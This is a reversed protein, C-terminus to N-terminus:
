SKEEQIAWLEIDQLGQLEATRRALERYSRSRGPDSIAAQERMVGDVSPLTCCDSLEGTISLARNENGIAESLLTFADNRVTELFGVYTMAAALRARQTEAVLLSQGGVEAILLEIVTEGLEDAAGVAWLEDHLPHAALVLAGTPELPDFIQVGHGLSTHLYMQGRRAAPALEEILDRLDDDRVSLVVLEFDRAEDASHLWSVEHGAVSLLRGLDIEDDADALVGVKLRPGRM